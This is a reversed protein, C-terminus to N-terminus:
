KYRLFYQRITATQGTKIPEISNTYFGRQHHFFFPPHKIGLGFYINDFWNLILSIKINGYDETFTVPIWGDKFGDL